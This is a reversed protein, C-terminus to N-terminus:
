IFIMGGMVWAEMDQPSIFMRNPDSSLGGFVLTIDSGEFRIAQPLSIAMREFEQPTLGIQPNERAFQDYFKQLGDIGDKKLEIRVDNLKKSKMFGLLLSIIGTCFIVIGIFFALIIMGAGELNSWMSSWLTSGLFMYVVGKGTVRTLIAIFRNCMQRIHHVFGVQTFLPTDVLALLLGFLFLYAMELADVWELSLIEDVLALGSGIMVCLSAGFWMFTWPFIYPAAMHGRGNVMGPYSNGGVLAVQEASAM